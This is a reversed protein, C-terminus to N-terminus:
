FTTLSIPTECNPLWLSRNPAIAATPFIRDVRRMAATGPEWLMPM